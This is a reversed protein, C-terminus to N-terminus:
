YRQYIKKLYLYCLKFCEVLILYIALTKSILMFTVKKTRSVLGVSSAIKQLLIVKVEKTYHPQFVVDSLTIRHLVDRTFQNKNSYNASFDDSYKLDVLTRACSHDIIDRVGDLDIDNPWEHMSGARNVVRRRSMGRHELYELETKAAMEFTSNKCALNMDSDTITLGLFEIARRLTELPNNKYDEFRLVLVNQQSLWKEYFYNLHDPVSLLSDPNLLQIFNRISTHTFDRKYRSLISGRPDRTFLVVKDATISDSPLEHTWECDVLGTFTFVSRSSTVPLWRKLEEHEPKLTYNGGEVNWTSEPSGNRYCLVNLFMLCNLLWTVGSPEISSAILVKSRNEM